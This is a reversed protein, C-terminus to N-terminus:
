ERPLPESIVVIREGNKYVIRNKRKGNTINNIRELGQEKIVCIINKKSLFFNEIESDKSLIDIPHPTYFTHKDYNIVAVPWGTYYYVGRVFMKDCLIEKKVPEEKSLRSLLMKDSFSGELRPALYNFTLVIVMFVAAFNIILAGKVKKKFLLIPLSCIAAAFVIEIILSPIFLEPFNGNIWVLSYVFAGLFVLTLLISISLILKFKKGSNFNSEIDAIQVAFLLCLAPFLPLVYSALKSQAFTFFVLTFTFWCYLFLVSPSFGKKKRFMFPFLGSWPFMGLFIVLLYFYWHNFSRHEATFFRQINEHVFFGYIFDHGYKLSAFIYWPLTVTLFALWGQWFFLFKRLSNWQKQIVFFLAIVFFPIVIGVPGKTLVALGASIYALIYFNTKHTKTYGSYFFFMSWLVFVTLVIDTLVGKSLGIYLFSTALISAAYFGIKRSFMLKGLLFTIVVGLAGFLAPWLRAAFETIGFLKFASIILWYFLVPKEFQPHGFMFPAALNNTEIMEKATQAYFTEDPDTLGVNGMGYSYILLSFVTLFLIIGINKYM